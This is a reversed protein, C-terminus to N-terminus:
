PSPPWPGRSSSAGSRRPPYLVLLRLSFLASSTLLASCHWAHLVCICAVAASCTAEDAVVLLALREDDLFGVRRSRASISAQIVGSSRGPRSSSIVMVRRACLVDRSRSGSDAAARQNVCSSSPRSSSAPRREGSLSTPWAHAARMQRVAPETRSLAGADALESRHRCPIRAADDARDLRATSILSTSTVIADMKLRLQSAAYRACRSTAVASPARRQASRPARTRRFGICTARMSAVARETRARHLAARLESAPRM